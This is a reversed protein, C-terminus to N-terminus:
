PTCDHIYGQTEICIVKSGSITLLYRTSTAPRGFDDFEIANVNPSIVINEELEAFLPGQETTSFSAVCAGTNDLAALGIQNNSIYAAQCYGDQTNQMARQQITRLLGLVEDKQTAESYTSTLDLKPLATVALVGLVMIVVILEILTFGQSRM